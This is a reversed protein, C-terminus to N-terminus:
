NVSEKALSESNWHAIIVPSLICSQNLNPALELKPALIQHWNEKEVRYKVIKRWPKYPGAILM